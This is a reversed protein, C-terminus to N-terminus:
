TNRNAAPHQDVNPHVSQEATGDGIHQLVNKQLTGPNIKLYQQLFFPNRPRPQGIPLVQRLLTENEPRFDSRGM